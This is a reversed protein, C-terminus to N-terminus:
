KKKTLGKNDENDSNNSLPAAYPYTSSSLARETKQCHDKTMHPVDQVETSLGKDSLDGPAGLCSLGASFIWTGDSKGEIHNINTTICYYNYLVLVLFVSLLLLLLIIVDSSEGTAQHVIGSCCSKLILFHQYQSARHVLASM